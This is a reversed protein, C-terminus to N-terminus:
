ETDDDPEDSKIVEFDKEKEQKNALLRERIKIKLEDLSVRLNINANLNLDNSQLNTVKSLTDLTRPKDWLKIKVKRDYVELENKNKKPRLEEIVEVSAIARTDVKDLDALLTRKGGEGIVIFDTIDSRSVIELESLTKAALEEKDKLREKIKKRIAYRVHPRNIIAKDKGGARKIAQTANFDKMYEYVFIVQRDSLPRLFLKKQDDTMEDEDPLVDNFKFTRPDLPPKAKGRTRKTKM